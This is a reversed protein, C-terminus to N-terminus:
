DRRDHDEGKMLKDIDSKLYMSKRGLKRPKLYGEKGWRRSTSISVNITRAVNEPTMYEDGDDGTRADNWENWMERMVEKLDDKDVVMLIKRGKPNAICKTENRFNMTKKYIGFDHGVFYM